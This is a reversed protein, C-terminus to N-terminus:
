LIVGTNQMECRHHLKKHVYNVALRPYITDCNLHM